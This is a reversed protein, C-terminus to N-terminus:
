STKRNRATVGERMMNVWKAKDRGTTVDSRIDENLIVIGLYATAKLNLSRLKKNSEMLMIMTAM